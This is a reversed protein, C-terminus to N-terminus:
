KPKQVVLVDMFSQQKVYGKPVSPDYKSNTIGYASIFSNKPSNNTYGHEKLLQDFRDKEVLVESGKEDAIHISFGANRFINAIHKTLYEGFRIWGFEVSDLAVFFYDDRFLGPFGDVAITRTYVEVPVDSNLGKQIRKRAEVIILQKDPVYLDQYHIFHGGSRLCRSVEKIAEEYYAISDWCSLGAIVDVSSNELPMEYLNGVEIQPETGFLEKTLLKNTEVVKPNIDFQRWRIGKPLFYNYFSGYMGCGFEAGDSVSRFNFTESVIKRSAELTALRASYNGQYDISCDRAYTVEGAIDKEFPNEVKSGDQRTIQDLSFTERHTQGFVERITPM